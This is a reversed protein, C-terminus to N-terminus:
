SGKFVFTWLHRLCNQEYLQEVYTLLNLGLPLRKRDASSRAAVRVPVGDAPCCALSRRM